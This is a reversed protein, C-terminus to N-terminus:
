KYAEKIGPRRVFRRITKKMTDRARNKKLPSLKDVFVKGNLHDIEHQLCFAEIGWFTHERPENHRDVYRVTVGDARERSEYVGPVSLCGEEQSQTGFVDLITPNIIVEINLPHTDIMTIVRLPEGIQIASLGIGEAVKMTDKMDEILAFLSDDFVTVTKSITHLVPDPYVRLKRIAM